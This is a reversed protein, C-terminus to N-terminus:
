PTKMIATDALRGVIVPLSFRFTAGGTPNSRGSIAGGHAEILTKCIALGLGLGNPNSSTFPQFLRDVLEPKIGAGSDTVEVELGDGTRKTEVQLRRGQGNQAMSELANRIVNVLVQQIQIGDVWVKPLAPELQLALTAQQKRIDGELLVLVERILQNLDCYARISPNRGVFARMRRIIQGARLSQDCMKQIVENLEANGLPEAFSKAASAYLQLSGLPQNLEHALGTAMEGMTGVRGLHALADRLMGVQAQSASHETIDRAICQFLLTTEREIPAVNLEFRRQSGSKSSFRLELIRHNRDQAIEALLKIFLGYDEEPCLRRLPISAFEDKTYGLSAAWSESFKIPREDEFGIVFVGDPMQEFLQRYMEESGRIEAEAKKRFTVDRGTWLIHSCDANARVAPEIRVELFMPGRPTSLPLELMRVSGSEIADRCAVSELEIYRPDAGIAQMVGTRSRGELSDTFPPLFKGVGEMFSRNAAELILQNGPEVRYLAQLDSTANFILSLRQESERLIRKANKQRTIDHAHWFVHTRSGLSDFVAKLQVELYRDVDKGPLAYEFQATRAHHLVQQHEQAIRDVLESKFGLEAVVERWERGIIKGNFHPFQDKIGNLYSKNVAEFVLRDGPEIRMLAQPDPTTNFILSLRRESAFLAAEARRQDSLDNACGVFHTPAGSSDRVLTASIQIDFKSGDRRIGVMESIESDESLLAARVKEGNKASEFLGLYSRGVVEELHEFGWMRLFAPNAYTIVREFDSVVVGNLLISNTREGLPALSEGGGAYTSERGILTTGIVVGDADHMPAADWSYYVKRGSSDEIPMEVGNASEGAILRSILSRAGLVCDSAFLDDVWDVGLRPISGLKSHKIAAPNLYSIKGTRDFVVILGPLSDLLRRPPCNSHPM